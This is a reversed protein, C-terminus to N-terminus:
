IKYHTGLRVIFPTRLGTVQGNRGDCVVKNQRDRVGVCFLPNKDLRDSCSKIIHVTQCLNIVRHLFFSRFIFPFQVRFGNANIFGDRQIIKGFFIRQLGFNGGHTQYPKWPASTNCKVRLGTRLGCRTAIRSSQRNTHRFRNGCRLM